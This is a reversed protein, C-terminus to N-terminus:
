PTHPPRCRSSVPRGCRRDIALWRESGRITINEVRTIGRDKELWVVTGADFCMACWIWAIAEPAERTGGFAYWGDELAREALTPPARDLHQLAGAAPSLREAVPDPGPTRVIALSLSGDLPVLVQADGTLGPWPMGRIPTYDDGGISRAAGVEACLTDGVLDVYAMRDGAELGLWTALDDGVPTQSRADTPWALACLLCAAFGGAISRMVISVGTM